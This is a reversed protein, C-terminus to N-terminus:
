DTHTKELYKKWHWTFFENANVKEAGDSGLIKMLMFFSPNRAGHLIALLSPYSIDNKMCFSRLSIGKASLARYLPHDDYKNTTM